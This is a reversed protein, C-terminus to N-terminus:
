ALSVRCVCLSAIRSMIPHSTAPASNGPNAVASSTTSLTASHTAARGDGMAAQTRMRLHMGRM